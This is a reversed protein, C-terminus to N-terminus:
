SHPNPKLKHSHARARTHTHTHIKTHTRCVGICKSRGPSRPFDTNPTKSPLLPPTSGPPPLLAIPCHPMPPMLRFSSSFSSFFISQTHYTILYKNTLVPVVRQYMNGGYEDVGKVWGFAGGWGLVGGVMVGCWLGGKCIYIVYPRNKLLFLLFGLFINEKEKEERKM